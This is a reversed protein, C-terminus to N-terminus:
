NRTKLPERPTLQIKIVFVQEQVESPTLGRKRVPIFSLFLAPLM